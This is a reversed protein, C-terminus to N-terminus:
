ILFYVVFSRRKFFYYCMRIYIYVYRRLKSKAAALLSCRRLITRRFRRRQLRNRWIASINKVTVISNSVLNYYYYTYYKLVNRCTTELSFSYGFNNTCPVLATAARLSRRKEYDIVDIKSEIYSLYVSNILINDFKLYISHNIIAYHAHSLVGNQSINWLHILFLLFRKKM